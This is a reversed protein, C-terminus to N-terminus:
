KNAVIPSFLAVAALNLRLIARKELPDPYVIRRGAEANEADGGTAKPSHM